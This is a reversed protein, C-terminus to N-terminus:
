VAERACSAAYIEAVPVYGIRCMVQLILRAFYYTCHPVQGNGLGKLRDVRHSVGDAVRGLRPEPSWLGGFRGYVSEATQRKGDQSYHVAHFSEGQGSLRQSASDSIKCGSRGAKPSIKGSKFNDPCGREHGEFSEAHALNEGASRTRISSLPGNGQRVPPSGNESFQRGQLSTQGPYDGIWKSGPYAVIWIRDRKHPAGFAAAPVCRWEADYGFTSLDGLVRSLGRKTLAPSNEVLVFAPRLVDIARAFDKWLGSKEGDIGAGKGGVSIDQCPFGGTLLDVKEVKKFDVEQIDGYIKKGPWRKALVERAYDDLECFWSHKFGAWEIGLDGLGHGSFLSGCTLNLM